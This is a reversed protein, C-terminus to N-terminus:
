DDLKKWFDSSPRTMPRTAASLRTEYYTDTPSSFASLHFLHRDVLISIIQRAQEQEAELLKAFDTFSIRGLRVAQNLASRLPESFFVVDSPRIDARSANLEQLVQKFLEEIM